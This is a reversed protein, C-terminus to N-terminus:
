RGTLAKVQDDAVRGIDLGIVRVQRRQAVLRQTGQGRTRVPQVVDAADDRLGALGQQRTAPQQEFVAVVLGHGHLGQQALGAQLGHVAARVQRADQAAAARALRRRSLEAWERPLGWWCSWSMLSVWVRMSWSTLDWSMTSKMFPLALKGMHPKEPRAIWIRLAQPTSGRVSVVTLTSSSS